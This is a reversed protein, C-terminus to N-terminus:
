GQLLSLMLQKMQNSQQLISVSAQMLLQQRAFESSESAFEVDAINSRADSEINIADRMTDMYVEVQSRQLAGLRARLSTIQHESEELIRFAQSPNELLSYPEDTRLQSLTGSEGGLATAHVSQISIRVQQSWTANPGLQMLAGGGSIRFGFVDGSQVAGNTTIEIDLESTASKAMRGDGIARRGNIDAVIDTGYAREVVNGFRDVTPFGNVENTWVNVFEKSGYEVSYFLLGLSENDTAGLMAAGMTTGMAKMRLMGSDGIHVTGSGDPVIDSGEGFLPISASFLDMIEPTSNILDVVQQATPPDSPNIGITL